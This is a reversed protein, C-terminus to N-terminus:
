NRTGVLYYACQLTGDAKTGKRRKADKAVKQEKEGGLSDLGRSRAYLPISCFSAFLAFPSVIDNKGSMVGALPKDVRSKSTTSRALSGQMLPDKALDVIAL